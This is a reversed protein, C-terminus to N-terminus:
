AENTAPAYNWNTSCRDGFGITAPELGAAGAMKLFALENLQGKANGANALKDRERKEKRRATLLGTVTAVNIEIDAALANLTSCGATEPHHGAAPPPRPAAM